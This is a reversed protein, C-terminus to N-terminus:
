RSPVTVNAAVVRSYTKSQCISPGNQAHATTEIRSPRPNVNKEPATSAQSTSARVGGVELAVQLGDEASPLDDGPHRHQGPRYGAAIDGLDRTETDREDESRHHEAHHEHEREQQHLVDAERRQLPDPDSLAHLPNRAGRDLVAPAHRRHLPDHERRRERRADAEVREIGQLRVEQLQPAVRRGVADGAEHRRDHGAGLDDAADCSRHDAPHEM